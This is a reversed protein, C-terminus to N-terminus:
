SSSPPLIQDSAFSEVYSLFNNKSHQLPQTPKPVYNSGYCVKYLLLYVNQLIQKQKRVSLLHSSRCQMDTTKSM